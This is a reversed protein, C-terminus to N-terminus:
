PRSILGLNAPTLDRTPPSIQITIPGYIDAGESNSAMEMMIRYGPATLTLNQLSTM